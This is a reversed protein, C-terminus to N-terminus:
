AKRGNHRDRYIRKSEVNQQQNLTKRDQKTLHGNDQARMGAEEKNVGAEQKELHSAEGATLQGSKIGQAIRDQQNEKRQNITPPPTNSTAAPAATTQAFVAAPTFALSAALALAKFNM